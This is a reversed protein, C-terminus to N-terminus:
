ARCLHPAASSSPYIFGSSDCLISFFIRHTLNREFRASSFRNCRRKRSGRTSSSMNQHLSAAHLLWAPWGGDVAVTEM